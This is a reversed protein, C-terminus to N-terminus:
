KGYKLYDNHKFLGENHGVKFNQRPWWYAIKRELDIGEGMFPEIVNLYFEKKIEFGYGKRKLREAAVITSGSGAVPDIVVDGEDTFIEVRIRIANPPTLKSFTDM